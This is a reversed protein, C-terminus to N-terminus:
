WLVARRLKREPGLAALYSVIVQHILPEHYPAEFTAEAVEPESASAGGVVPLRM